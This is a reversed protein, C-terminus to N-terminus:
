VRILGYATFVLLVPVSSGYLLKITEHICGGTRSGDSLASVCSLWLDLLWLVQLVSSKLVMSLGQRTIPLLMGRVLESM